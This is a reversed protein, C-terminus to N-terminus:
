CRVSSCGLRCSAWCALFLGAALALPAVQPKPKPTRLPRRPSKSTGTEAVGALVPVPKGDVAPILPHPSLFAPNDLNDTEVLFRLQQAPELPVKAAPM